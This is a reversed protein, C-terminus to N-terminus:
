LNPLAAGVVPFGFSSFLGLQQVALGAAALAEAARAASVADPLLLECCQATKGAREALVDVEGALVAAARDIISAM